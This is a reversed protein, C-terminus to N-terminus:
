VWSLVPLVGSVVGGEPDPDAPAVGFFGLASM